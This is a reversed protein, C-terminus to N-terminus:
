KRKGNRVFTYLPTFIGLPTSSLDAVLLIRQRLTQFGRMGNFIM